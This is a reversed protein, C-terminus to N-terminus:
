KHDINAHRYTHRGGMGTERGAHRNRGVVAQKSRGAKQQGGTSLYMGAEVYM